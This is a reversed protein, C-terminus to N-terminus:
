ATPAVTATCSACRRAAAPITSLCEPCSRMAPEDAAAGRRTNILSVPKVIVFFVAAAVSVFSIVANLFDGYLFVSGNITFRLAGFDPKGIIAAIVPTMLDAVLANVVAVFALGMVFAVALDVINGRFLFQKFERLM